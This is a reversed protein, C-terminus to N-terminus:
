IMFNEVSYNFDPQNNNAPPPTVNKPIRTTQITKTAPAEPQKQVQPEPKNEPEKNESESQNNDNDPYIIDGNDFVAQDDEIARVMELSKLGWKSLLRKIMTKKAMGDFDTMWIPTEYTKGAKYSKYAASYALAHKNIEDKSAYILKSYGNKLEFSAVYGIITELSERNPKIEYELVEKVPDYSKFEGKKLETVTIRKYEGTRIALQVYGLYGMQLQAQNKYPVLYWEKMQPHLHLTAGEVAAKLISNYDCGKLKNNNDIMVCMYAIFENREKDSLISMAKQSESQGLFAKFSNDQVEVTNNQQQLNLLGKTTAM